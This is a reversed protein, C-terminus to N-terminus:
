IPDHLRSGIGGDISIESGTIFGDNNTSLFVVLKAIEDPKGIKDAPHIKKLEDLKDLNGDFGRLLMKTDVAGPNITNITINKSLEISLARTLGSMSSKSTSYACFNPKTLKSHISGINVVSGNNKKLQSEFSKIMSFPAISNVIHSDLLDNTTLEQFPKVIQLAANNILVKLPAQNKKIILEVSNTFKLRSSENKVFDILECTLYFDLNCFSM